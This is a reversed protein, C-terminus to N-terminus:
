ASGGFKEMWGSRKCNGNINQTKVDSIDKRVRDLLWRVTPVLKPAKKKKTNRVKNLRKTCKGDARQWINGAWELRKEGKVFNYYKTQLQICGKGSL